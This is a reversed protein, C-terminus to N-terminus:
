KLQLIESQIQVYLFMGRFYNQTKELNSFKQRDKYGIM